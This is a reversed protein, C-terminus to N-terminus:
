PVPSIPKIWFSHVWVMLKEKASELEVKKNYAVSVKMINVCRM